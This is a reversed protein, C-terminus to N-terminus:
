REPRNGMVVWIQSELPKNHSGPLPIVGQVLRAMSHPLIWGGCVLTM